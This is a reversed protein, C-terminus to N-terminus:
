RDALSLLKSSIKLRAEEAAKQNIEFRIKNDKQIFRVIGGSQTFSDIDSVTLISTGKLIELIQPASARESGSIFLIHCSKLDEINGSYKVAFHRGNLTQGQALVEPVDGFPSAGLVGITMPTQADPFLQSPWEVFKAFNFLFAAKIQYELPVAEAAEAMLLFSMLLGPLLVLRGTTKLSGSRASLFFPM